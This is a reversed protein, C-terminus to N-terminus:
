NTYMNGTHVATPLRTDLYEQLELADIHNIPNDNCDYFTIEERQRDSNDQKFSYYLDGANDWQDISLVELHDKADINTLRDSLWSSGQQFQFNAECPSDSFEEQECSTFAFATILLACIKFYKTTKM